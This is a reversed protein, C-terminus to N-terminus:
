NYSMTNANQPFVSKEVIRSEVGLRSVQNENKNKSITQIYAIRLVTGANKSVHYLKWFVVNKM